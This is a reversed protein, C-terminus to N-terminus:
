IHALGYHYYAAARGTTAQTAPVTATSVDTAPAADKKQAAAAFPALLVAAAALVMSCQAIRSRVSGNWGANLTSLPHSLGATAQTHPDTM